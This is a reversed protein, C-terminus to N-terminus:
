LFITLDVKEESLEQLPNERGVEHFTRILLIYYMKFVYLQQSNNNEM